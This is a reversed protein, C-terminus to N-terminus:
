RFRVAIGVGDLEVFVVGKEEVGECFQDACSENDAIRGDDDGCRRMTFCEGSTEVGTSKVEFYCGAGASIMCDVGGSGEGTEHNV